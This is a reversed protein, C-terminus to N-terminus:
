NHYIEYYKQKCILSILLTKFGQPLCLDSHLVSHLGYYTCRIKNALTNGTRDSKQCTLHAGMKNTQVQNVARDYSLVLSYQKKRKIKGGLDSPRDVDILTEMFSSGLLLMMYSCFVLLPGTYETVTILSKLCPLNKHTHIGTDSLSPYVYPIHVHICSTKHM